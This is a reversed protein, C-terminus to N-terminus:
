TEEIQKHSKYMNELESLPILTYDEDTKSLIGADSLKQIYFKKAEEVAHRLQNNM